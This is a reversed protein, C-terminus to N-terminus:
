TLNWNKHTECFHIKSSEKQPPLSPIIRKQHGSIKTHPSEQVGLDLFLALGPHPEMGYVLHATPQLGVIVWIM